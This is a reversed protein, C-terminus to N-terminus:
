ITWWALFLLQSQNTIKLSQSMSGAGNYQKNFGGKIFRSYQKKLSSWFLIIKIIKSKCFTAPIFNFFVQTYITLLQLYQLYKIRNAKDNLIYTDNFIHNKIHTFWELTLPGKCRLM